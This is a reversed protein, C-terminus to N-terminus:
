NEQNEGGRFRAATRQNYGSEWRFALVKEKWERGDSRRQEPKQFRVKCNRAVRRVTEPFRGRGPPFERNCDAAPEAISRKGEPGPGSVKDNHFLIPVAM